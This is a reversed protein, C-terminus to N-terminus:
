PIYKITAAKLIICNKYNCEWTTSPTFLADALAPSMVSILKIGPNPLDGPSPFLLTSWYEQHFIGMSLLAQRSITWLTDFFCPTESVVSTVSYPQVCWLVYTHTYIYVNIHICFYTHIYVCVYENKTLSKRWKVYLRLWISECNSIFWSHSLDKGSGACFSSDKLLKM